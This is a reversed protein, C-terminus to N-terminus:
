LIIRNYMYKYDVIINPTYFNTLLTSRMTLTRIVYFLKFFHVYYYPIDFLSSCLFVLTSPSTLRLPFTLLVGFYM